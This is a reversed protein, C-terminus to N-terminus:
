GDASISPAQGARGKLKDRLTKRDIGLIEAARTKNGEVLALVNQIHEEEVEALPRLIKGERAAWLRILPPLQDVEIRVGQASAALQRMVMEIENVNGPWPYNLLAEKCAESFIPVPIALEVAYRGIFHEALLLADEGRERVPPVTITTGALRRYLEDNFKGKEVLLALDRSSSALTRVDVDRPTESGAPLVQRQQIVRLLNYQADRTLCSVEELYISGGAAIQFFGTREQGHGPVMEERELGGREHRKEQGFLEQEMLSPPVSECNVAVFPARAREGSYHIARAVAERDTGKEGTILVPSTLAAARRVTQRLRAMAASNGIVGFPAEAYRASAGGTGCRIRQKEVAKAVASLLEEDTFPKSLYDDAGTKMAQVAGNITAYGTIMIVATDKFQEQVHRLLDIGSSGPMKLDTIVLDIALHSLIELAQAVDLATHVEYNGASLNRRIIEVADPSDDVVLLRARGQEAQPM